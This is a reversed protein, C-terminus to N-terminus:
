WSHRRNPDQRVAEDAAQGRQRDAARKEAAKAKEARKADQERSRAAKAAKDGSRKSM